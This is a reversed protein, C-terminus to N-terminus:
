PNDPMSPNFNLIMPPIRLTLRKKSLTYTQGAITRTGRINNYPTDDYLRRMDLWRRGTAAFELIRERLILKVLEQQGTYQVQATADPMRSKRLTELDNEADTLQGGRAECEAKMLYLNALTPGLNVTLPGSRQYGPLQTASSLLGRNSFAKRRHDDAGFLDYTEPTLVALSSFASYVPAATQKVFITEYSDYPTPFSSLGVNPMFPIYWDNIKTNYDYLSIPVKSSGIQEFAKKLPTIAEQYKGMNFYVEGLISYAALQGIRGRSITSPNLFPISENIENIIFDYVEKVSARQFGNTETSAETVIPVGPDTAATAETFPKSFLQAVWFHMYARAVRAEAQLARKEAETGDEASMVGNAIVNYVYNHVYMTGWESSNNEPLYIDDAWKYSKQNILSYNQFTAPNAMIDDSMYYPAEVEGLISYSFGLEGTVANTTATVRLNQFGNILTNNFLGNYHAIKKALVKGKPEVELFKKCGTFVICIMILMTTKKMSINMPIYKKSIM